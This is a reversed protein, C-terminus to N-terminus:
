SSEIVGAFFSLAGGGGALEGGAAGQRFKVSSEALRLLDCCRALMAVNRWVAAATIGSSVAGTAALTIFVRSM